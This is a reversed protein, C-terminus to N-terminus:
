IRRRAFQLRRAIRVEGVNARCGHGGAERQAPRGVHGFPDSRRRVEDVPRARLYQREACGSRRRVDRGSGPQRRVDCAARQTDVEPWRDNRRIFGGLACGIGLAEGRCLPAKGCGIWGRRRRRGAPGAHVVAACWSSRVREEDRGASAHAHQREDDDLHRHRADCRGADRDSPEDREHERLRTNRGSDGRREGGEAVQRRRSETGTGISLAYVCGTITSPTCPTPRPSRSVPM